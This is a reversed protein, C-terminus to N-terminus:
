ARLEAVLEQPEALGILIRDYPDGSTSVVVGPGPRHILAFDRFSQRGRGGRWTGIAIRNPWGTGPLRLGRVQGFIDAVATVDTISSIPVTLTRRHVAALSEPLTLTIRMAGAVVSVDAM